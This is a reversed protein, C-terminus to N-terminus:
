NNENYRACEICMDTGGTADQRAKPILDGCDICDESYASKKKMSKLTLALTKEERESTMDVDDM